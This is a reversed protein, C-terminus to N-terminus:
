RWSVGVRAFVWASSWTWLVLEKHANFSYIGTSESKAEIGMERVLM